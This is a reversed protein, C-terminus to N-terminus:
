DQTEPNLLKTFRAHAEQFTQAGEPNAKLFNAVRLHRQMVRESAEIAIRDKYDALDVLHSARQKESEKSVYRNVMDTSGSIATAISTVTGFLSSLAATASTTNTLTSM